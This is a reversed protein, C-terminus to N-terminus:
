TSEKIIKNNIRDYVHCFDWTKLHSNILCISQTAKEPTNFGSECIINSITKAATVVEPYIKQWLSLLFATSQEPMSLITYPLRIAALYYLALDIQYNKNAVELAKNKLKKHKIKHFFNSKFGAKDLRHLVDMDCVLSGVEEGYTVHWKEETNPTITLPYGEFLQLCHTFEHAVNTEFPEGFLDSSLYVIYQEQKNEVAGYMGDPVNSDIKIPKNINKRINNIYKELEQSIQKNLLYSTM